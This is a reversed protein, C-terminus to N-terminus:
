KMEAQNTEAQTRETRSVDSIEPFLSMLSYIACFSLQRPPAQLYWMLRLPDFTFQGKPSDKQSQYKDMM